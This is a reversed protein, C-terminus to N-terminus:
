GQRQKVNKVTSQGRAVVEQRVSGETGAATQEV